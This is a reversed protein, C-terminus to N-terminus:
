YKKKVSMAVISEVVPLYANLNNLHNM